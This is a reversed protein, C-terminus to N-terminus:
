KDPNDVGATHGYNLATQDRPPVDVKKYVTRPQQPKPCGNLHHGYEGCNQCPLPLMGGQNGQFAGSIPAPAPCNSAYHGPQGCRYCIVLTLDGFKSPGPTHGCGPGPQHPSNGQNWVPPGRGRGYGGQIQYISQIEVKEEEQPEVGAYYMGTVADVYHIQKRPRIACDVPLHGEKGCNTCYVNPRFTSVAKRASLNGMMHVKISEMMEKMGKLEDKVKVLEKDAKSIKGSASKSSKTERESDAEGSDESRADSNGPDDSEETESEKKKKGKSKSKKAEKVDLRKLSERLSSDSNEFNQAAEMADRLNDPRSQRVYFAMQKPLGAVYWEVQIVPSINAQTLKLFLSKVRQGYQRVSEKSGKRIQSLRGLIRAEGGAERFTRVFADSLLGWDARTAAPVDNYWKLAEGKLLGSFVRLKSADDEQNAHAIAVFEDLWDDVDEEGDGKFRNYKLRTLPARVLAAMEEGPAVPILVEAPAPNAAPPTTAAESESEVGFDSEPDPVPVLLEVVPEVM